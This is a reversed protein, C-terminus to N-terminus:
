QAPVRHGPRQSARLVLHASGTRRRPQRGRGNRRPQDQAGQRRALGPEAPRHGVGRRRHGGVASGALRLAPPLRLPTGARRQREAPRRHRHRDPQDPGHLERGRDLPGTERRREARGADVRLVHLHLPQHRVGPRDRSGDDRGGLGAGRRHARGAAAEPRGRDRQHPRSAGHLDDHRGRLRPGLPAGARDRDPDGHAQPTRHMRQHCRGRLM